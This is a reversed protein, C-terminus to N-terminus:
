SLQEFADEVDSVWQEYSSGKTLGEMWENLAEEKYGDIMMQLFFVQLYQENQFMKLMGQASPKIGGRTAWEIYNQVVTITNIM